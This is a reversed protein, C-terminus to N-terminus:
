RGYAQKAEIEVTPVPAEAVAAGGDKSVAKQEPHPTGTLLGTKVDVKMPQSGWPRTWTDKLAEAHGFSAHKEFHWRKDAMRLGGATIATQEDAM